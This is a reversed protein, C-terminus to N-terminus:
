KYDPLTAIAVSMNSIVGDGQAETLATNREAAVLAQRLQYVSYREHAMTRDWERTLRMMADRHQKTCYHMLTRTIRVWLMALKIRM